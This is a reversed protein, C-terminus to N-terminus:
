PKKRARVLARDLIGLFRQDLWAKLHHLMAIIRPQDEPQLCETRLKGDVTRIHVWLPKNTWGPGACEEATTGILV